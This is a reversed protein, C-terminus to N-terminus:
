KTAVMGVIEKENSEQLSLEYLNREKMLLKIKQTRMEIVSFGLGCIFILAVLLIIGKNGPFLTQMTKKVEKKEM